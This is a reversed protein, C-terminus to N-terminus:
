STGSLKEMAAAYIRRSQKVEENSLYQKEPHVVTQRLRNLEVIWHLRDKKKKHTDEKFITLTDEFLDWHDEGIKHYDILDLYQWIQKQAQDKTHREACKLRISEAVGKSYWNPQGGAGDGDGFKKKLQAVVFEHLERNLDVVNELAGKTGEVDLQAIYDDLGKATFDPIENKILRMMEFECRRVGAMGINKRFILVEDETAKQFHTTIPKILKLVDEMFADPKYRDLSLGDKNQVYSLVNRFVGLISRVGMNTALFGGPNNGLQWHGDAQEAICNFLEELAEYAKELTAHLSKSNSDSLPGPVVQGNPREEGFFGNARLPDSIQQVSLCRLHGRKKGQVQVRGKLPSTLRTNLELTLRSALAETRLKFDASEWNLTAYIQKLLSTSVAKQEHNIDVFMQAEEAAPLEHFALVPFATKDDKKAARKSHAYGFLRHQGDIVWACAYQSPLYLTGVSAGGIKKKADFRLTRAHINIVINTPFLGGNDVYDAIKQLRTKSILRQYYEIDISSEKAKHAIYARKLLEGPHVVFNYFTKGGMRAETAPVQLKMEQISQNRFLHALFQYRAAFKLHESLQSFYHIDSDQVPIIKEERARELDAHSWHINRTAIVWGIKLKKNGCYNRLSNGAGQRFAVIKEILGTLPKKKPEKSQTCEVFVAAENDVALVDIQRFENSRIKIKLIGKNLRTFGMRYLICWIDDELQKGEKKPTQLRTSQKNKKFVEWGEKEKGSVIDALAKKDKASVTEYIVSKSRQSYESKLEDRPSLEGEVYETM